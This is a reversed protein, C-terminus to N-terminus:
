GSIKRDIVFITKVSINVSDFINPPMKIMNILAFLRVLLYPVFNARSLM